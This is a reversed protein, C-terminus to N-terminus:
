PITLSRVEDLIRDSRKRGQGGHVTENPNPELLLRNVTRRPDIVGKVGVGLGDDSQGGAAVGVAAPYQGFNNGCQLSNFSPSVEAILDTATPLNAM